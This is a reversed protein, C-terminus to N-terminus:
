NSDKNTQALTVNAWGQRASPRGLLLETVSVM